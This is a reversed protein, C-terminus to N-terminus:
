SNVSLKVIREVIYEIAADKNGGAIQELRALDARARALATEYNEKATNEGENILTDYIEKAKTESENLLREAEAEAAEVMKKAELNADKKLQEAKEETERILAIEDSIM